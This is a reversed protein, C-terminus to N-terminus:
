KCKETRKLFKAAPRKPIKKGNYRYLSKDYENSLIMSKKRINAKTDAIEVGNNAITVDFSPNFCEINKLIGISNIKTMKNYKNFNM